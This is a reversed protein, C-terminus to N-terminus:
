VYHVVMLTDKTVLKADWTLPTTAWAKGVEKQIAEIADKSNPALVRFTGVMKGHHDRARVRFAPYRVVGEVTM